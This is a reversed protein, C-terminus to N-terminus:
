QFGNRGVFGPLGWCHLLENLSYGSQDQLILFLDVRAGIRRRGTDQFVQHFLTTQALHIQNRDEATLRVDALNKRAM